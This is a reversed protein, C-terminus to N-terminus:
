PRGLPNFFSIERVFSLYGKKKGSFAYLAKDRGIKKELPFNRAGIYVLKFDGKVKDV